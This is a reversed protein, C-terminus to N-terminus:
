ESVTGGVSVPTGPTLRTEDAWITFPVRLTFSVTASATRESGANVPLTAGPGYSGCGFPHRHLGDRTQREVGVVLPGVERDTPDRGPGVRRGVERHEPGPQEVQHPLPVQADGHERHAPVGVTVLVGRHEPRDGRRAVLDAVVGVAVLGPQVAVALGLELLLQTAGLVRDGAGGSDAGVPEAPGPVAERLVRQPHEDAAAVPVVRGGERGDDARHGPGHVEAGRPQVRGLTLLPLMEVAGPGVAQARQPGVPEADVTGLQQLQRDRGQRDQPQRDVHAVEQHQRRVRLGGARSNGPRAGPRGGRAPRARSGAGGAPGGRPRPPAPGAIRGPCASRGLSWAPGRPSSGPDAARAREAHDGHPLM